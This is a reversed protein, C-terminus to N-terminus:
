KVTVNGTCSRGPEMHRTKKISRNRVAQSNPRSLSQTYRNGRALRTANTGRQAIADNRRGNLEFELPWEWGLNLRQAWGRSGYPGLIARCVHIELLQERTSRLAYRGSFLFGLHVITVAFLARAWDGRPRWMGRTTVTKVSM